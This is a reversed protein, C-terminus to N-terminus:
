RAIAGESKLKDALSRYSGKVIDDLLSYKPAPQWGLEQKAKQNSARSELQSMSATFYGCMEIAEELTVSKTAVDLAKGIATALDKLRVDTETSCNFVSGAKGKEMALLYLDASADVDAATTMQLGDGVYPAFGYKAAAQMTIPLFYSGGRGYVFPALRIAMARVGQDVFELAAQESRVRFSHGKSLPSHEYTEKGNDAEVVLTGSTSILAKNANGLGKALAQIAATDLAMLEEIPRNFEHVFGLHLVADAGKATRTLLDLDELTGLIPTAGIKELKSASSDSRALGLVTHGGKIAKESVVSGVYGSAGTIFIRM